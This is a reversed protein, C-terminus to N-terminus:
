KLNVLRERERRERGEGRQNREGLELTVRQIRSNIYCKTTEEMKRSSYIIFEECSLFFLVFFFM